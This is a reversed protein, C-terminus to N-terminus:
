APLLWAAPPSIFASRPRRQEAQIASALLDSAQQFEPDRLFRGTITQCDPHRGEILETLEDLVAERTM